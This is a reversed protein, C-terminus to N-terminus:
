CVISAAPSKRKEISARINDRMKEKVPRYPRRESLVRFVLTLLRRATAVKAGNYGARAKIHEYHGRLWWDSTIAPVVAEVMAWRIWKNGQRTIRGHHTKGGSSYTSPVLGAYAALKKPSAFRTIGDIEAWLLVAFFAGIGPITKLLAVERNGKALDNVWRDSNKIRANLAELLALEGDLLKREDPPLDIEALWKMGAKGFLDAAMGEGKVIEPHRDVLGHTRNKVMTRMRVWFMRQRLVNRALRVDKSPVHAAPILDARLLDALVRSDIADTKIKASAIAKVKMPHALTVESFEELMDHMVLWNRTAEIVAKSEGELNEFLAAVDEPRNGIRGKGIVEGRDDLITVHSYKKHYDIGLYNM